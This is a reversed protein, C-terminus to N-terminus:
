FVLGYAVALTGVILCYIAFYVLKGRKVIRIMVACAFLGALFAAMFGSALAAPAIGEAISPDEIFKLLELFTAGIIPLLVM